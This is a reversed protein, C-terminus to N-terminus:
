HLVGFVVLAIVVAFLLGATMVGAAVGQFNESRM